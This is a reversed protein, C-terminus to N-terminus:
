GKNQLLTECKEQKSNETLVQLVFPIQQKVAQECMELTHKQCELNSTWEALVLKEERLECQARELIMDM